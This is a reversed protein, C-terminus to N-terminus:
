KESPDRRIAPVTQSSIAATLAARRADLADLQQGTERGLKQLSPPLSRFDGFTAASRRRQKLYDDLTTAYDNVLTMFAPAVRRRAQALDNLKTQLEDLQRPTDWERIIVQLSVDTRAPLEAASARVAVATHLLADLKQASEEPTWLQQHDRGAFYASQLAWWKELALQNPFQNQYARLFATQWNYFQALTRVFTRLQEPGHPLGLLETVFLQASKQFVEAQTRSFQDPAPWSLEELTLAPHHRLVLRAAALADPNRQLDMKPEVLLAGVSVSPPPLILELERSALLQQTLGESLWLPIEASRGTATRNALELLLVQVLTRTFQDRAMREPLEIQYNWRPGLSTVSIQASDQHGRAPRITAHINGSWDRGVGLQEGLAQKIRECSVVLFPPELLLLPQGNTPGPPRLSTPVRRDYIIFQGSSSRLTNAFPLANQAPLLEGTVFLFGIALLTRM